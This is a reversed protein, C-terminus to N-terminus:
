LYQRLKQKKVEKKWQFQDGYVYLYGLYSTSTYLLPNTMASMLYALFGLKKYVSISRNFIIQACFLLFLVLFFVGNQRYFDLLSWEMQILETGRGPSYFSSGMGSGTLLAIPNEEYYEALGLLHGYRINDSEVASDTTFIAYVMEQIRPFYYILLVGVGLIALVILLLGIRKKYNSVLFYTVILFIAAITSARTGSVVIAICTLICLWWKKKHLAHSLIYIYLPSCRLFIKYVFAYAESKGIYGIEYQYIFDRIPSDNVDYIRLLDAAFLFLTFAMLMMVATLFLRDYNLERECNAITLLLIIGPYGFSLSSGVFGGVIISYIIMGVPFILGWLYTKTWKPQYIANLYVSVNILFLFLLLPIKLNFPDLPLFICISLFLFLIGKEFLKKINVM